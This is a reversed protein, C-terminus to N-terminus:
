LLFHHHTKRMKMDKHPFPYSDSFSPDPSESNFSNWLVFRGWWIESEWITDFCDSCLLVEKGMTPHRYGEFLGLRRGCESCLHHKKHGYLTDLDDDMTM